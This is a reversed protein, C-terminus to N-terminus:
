KRENKVSHRKAFNALAAAKGLDSTPGKSLGGHFKCRGNGYIATIKCIGAAKKKRAGCIMGKLEAPFPPLRYERFAGPRDGAAVSENWAALSHENSRRIADCLRHYAKWKGRLQALPDLPKRTSNM